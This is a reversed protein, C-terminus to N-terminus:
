VVERSQALRSISDHLFNEDHRDLLRDGIRLFGEYLASLVRGNSQPFRLLVSILEVELAEELNQREEEPTM